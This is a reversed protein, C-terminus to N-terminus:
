QMQGRGKVKSRDKSGSRQGTVESMQGKFMVKSEQGKVGSVHCMVKSEQGMVKSGKGWDKIRSGHGKHKSGHGKM